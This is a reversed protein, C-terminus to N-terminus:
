GDKRSGKSSGSKKGTSDTESAASDPRSLESADRPTPTEAKAPDYPPQGITSDVTATGADLRRVPERDSTESAVDTQVGPPIPDGAKIQVRVGTEPGTQVIGYGDDKAIEPAM